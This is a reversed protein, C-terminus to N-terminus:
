RGVKARLERVWRARGGTPKAWAGAWDYGGGGKAAAMAARKTAYGGALAYGSGAHTVSWTRGRKLHGGSSVGLVSRAVVLGPAGAVSSAGDLAYANGGVRAVPVSGSSPPNRKAKPKRKAKAKAKAPAKPKAPARPRGIALRVERGGARREAVEGGDAVVAAVARKVSAAPGQVWVRAAARRGAIWVDVRASGKRLEQVRWFGIPRYEAAKWGDIELANVVQAGPGGWDPTRMTEGGSSPPNARARGGAEGDERPKFGGADYADFVVSYVAETDAWWEGGDIQETEYEAVGLEPGEGGWEAVPAWGVGPRWYELESPAAVAASMFSGPIDRDGVPDIEVALARAPARLMVIVREADNAPEPEYHHDQIDVVRGFWELAGPWSAWFVRGAGHSNYSGHGFTASHGGDRPVLGDAAIADVRSYPTSHYLWDSV